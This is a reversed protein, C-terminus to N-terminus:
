AASGATQVAGPRPIDQPWEAAKPWHESLWQLAKECRRVQIDRGAELADLKKGDGLMRWSVTSLEIGEAAAYIRALTLLRDIGGM